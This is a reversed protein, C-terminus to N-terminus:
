RNAPFIFVNRPGDTAILYRKAINNAFLGRPKSNLALVGKSSQERQKAVRKSRIQKDLKKKGENM